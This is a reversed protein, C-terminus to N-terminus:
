QTGTAGEMYYNPTPTRLAGYCMLALSACYDDHYDSGEPAHPSMLNGKYEKVLELMQKEFRKRERCDEKPYSLERKNMIRQLLLFMDHKSQATFVVGNVHWYPMAVRAFDVIQDQTATSDCYIGRVRNYHGIFEAIIPLQQDYNDGKLELWNLIVLKSGELAGITVVTSDNKKGWDIGVYVDSNALDHVLLYDGKILALEDWSTFNSAQTIWQLNLQMKVFDSDPGDELERKEAFAKFYPNVSEAEDRRVFLVNPTAQTVHEFFFRNKMNVVPTGIYCYTANYAAGRYQIGEKLQLENIEAAEDIIGLGIPNGKLNAGIEASKTFINCGNELVFSDRNNERLPIEFDRARLHMWFEKIYRFIIGAQSHTPAYIGIPLQYGLIDPAAVALPLVTRSIGRSKGTQPPQLVFFDTGKRFVLSDIVADSFRRQYPYLEEGALDLFVDRIQKLAAAQRFPSLTNSQM